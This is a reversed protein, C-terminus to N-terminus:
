NREFGPAAKTWQSADRRNRQRSAHRGQGSLRGRRYDNWTEFLVQQIWEPTAYEAHRGPDDLQDGNRRSKECGDSDLRASQDMGDAHNHGDLSGAKQYRIGRCFFSAGVRAPSRRGRDVLRNEIKMNAHAAVAIETDAHREVNRKSRKEVPMEQFDVPITIHSVGRPALATRCALEEAPEVHAPGHDPRIDSANQTM